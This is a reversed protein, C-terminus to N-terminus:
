LAYTGRRRKRRWRYDQRSKMSEKLTSWKKVRMKGRRGVLVWVGGGIDVLFDMLKLFRRRAFASVMPDEPDESSVPDFDLFRM